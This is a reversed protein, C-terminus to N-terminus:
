TSFKFNKKQSLFYQSFHLTTGVCVVYVCVRFLTMAGSTKFDTSAPILLSYKYDLQLYQRLYTQKNLLSVAIYTVPIIHCM